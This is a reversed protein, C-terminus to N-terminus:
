GLLATATDAGMTEVFGEIWPMIWSDSGANVHAKFEYFRESRRTDNRAFYREKSGLYHHVMLPFRNAERPRLQDIRRCLRKSPRHISFPKETFMEDSWPVRSVDILVKPQANRETDNFETHYKWRLTELRETSFEASGVKLSSTATHNRDEESGFLLRPMSICPYNAARLMTRNLSAAFQIISARGRPTKPTNSGPRRRLYPNIVMYEDTDLHMVWDRGIAKFRKLCQSVFTLQRFRHNQIRLNDAIVQEPTEHGEHWKSKTADGNIAHPAIHYGKQLFSEPMFDEDHWEEIQIYKRWPQLTESPSTESSPDIAVILHTMNLTFYHYAIWESLIENDDKILLCAALSVSKSPTYNIPPLLFEQQEEHQFNDLTRQLLNASFLKDSRITLTLINILFSFGCFTALLPMFAGVRVFGAM